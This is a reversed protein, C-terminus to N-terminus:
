EWKLEEPPVEVAPGLRVCWVSNPLGAAADRREREAEALRVLGFADHAYLDFREVPGGNDPRFEVTQRWVTM